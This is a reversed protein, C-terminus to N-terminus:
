WNKNKHIVKISKGFFRLQFIILLDFIQIGAHGYQYYEFQTPHCVERDITTGPLCNGSKNQIFFFKMVCYPRDRVPLSKVRSLKRLLFGKANSFRPTRRWDKSLYDTYESRGPYTQLIIKGQNLCILVM